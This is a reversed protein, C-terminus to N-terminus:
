KIVIKRGNNVYVGSQTPKCSLRRGDLTYWDSDNVTSMSDHVTQIGTQEGDFVMAFGRAKAAKSGDLALFAKRAPVETGKYKFFGFEDAQKSMMYIAEAGTISSIIADTATRVDIGHLHNVPMEAVSATSKTMSISGAEGVIIVANGAPVVKGLKHLVVEDTGVEATYAWANEEEDIEYGADGCYFTTWYNGDHANATLAINESPTWLISVTVVKAPMTFAGDSITADSSEYGGFDYGTRSDHGLTVTQGEPAVTYSGVTLADSTIGDGLNIQYVMVNGGGDTYRNGDGYGVINENTAADYTCNSITLAATAANSATNSGVIAGVRNSGSFTTGIVSCGSISKVSTSNYYNSFGVIGGVSEYDITLSGGVVHCNSITGAQITGVIGGVQNYASFAPSVLTVNEVTANTSNIISFLGIGYYPYSFRLGTITHGQGDFHGYFASGGNGSDIGIPLFNGSGNNLRDHCDLPMDTFDLDATMKFTAGECNHDSSANVYNGLDILDQEDAIAFYGTCYTQSGINFTEGVYNLGDITTYIYLRTVDVSGETTNANTGLADYGSTGTYYYTGSINGKSTNKGVVVGINTSGTATIDFSGVAYCDQISGNLYGAIGGSNTSSTSTTNSITAFNTCDKITAYAYGCIGGFYEKSTSTTNASVTGSVTCNEITGATTYGAIGGVRQGGRVTCNVVNVNKVVGDTGIVGFLGSYKDTNTSLGNINFGGGDYTGKFYYYKTAQKGIPTWTDSLTIDATQKFRKGECTNVTNENVYTALAALAEPGDVKYYSGDGDTEVTFPYSGLTETEAWATATTLMMTLLLLAARSFLRRM